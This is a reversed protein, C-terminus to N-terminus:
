NCFKCVFLGFPNKRRTRPVITRVQFKNELVANYFQEIISPLQFCDIRISEIQTKETQNITVGLQECHFTVFYLGEPNKIKYKRSM